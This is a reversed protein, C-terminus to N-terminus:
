NFFEAPGREICATGIMSTQDFSEIMPAVYFIPLPSPVLNKNTVFDDVNNEQQDPRHDLDYV